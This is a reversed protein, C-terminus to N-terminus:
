KWSLKYLNYLVQAAQARTSLAKPNLSRGDGSIIGTEAFLRMADNAYGAIAGADTFSGLSKGSTGAPLEGLKELMRHLIVFMDQRSIAAEPAYKGGGIGAALGLRKATGLYGTYYKDGADSFNDAIDADPEIGYSKMAMVLFDARTVNNEPAFRGGGVGNIVSRAAMFGVAESYWAKAAVDSFNVENYGVIYRSFHTTTFDVTKTDPDYRGNVM